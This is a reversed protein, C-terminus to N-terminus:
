RIRRHRAHDLAHICCLPVLERRVSLAHQAFPKGKNFTADQNARPEPEGGDQLAVKKHEILSHPTLQRM